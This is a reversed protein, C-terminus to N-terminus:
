SQKRSEIFQHILTNGMWGPGCSVSAETLAKGLNDDDIEMCSLKVNKHKMWRYFEGLLCRSQRENLQEGVEGGIKIRASQQQRNVVENLDSRLRKLFRWVNAFERAHDCDTEDENIPPVCESKLIKCASLPLSLRQLAEIRESESNFEFTMVLMRGEWMRSKWTKLVTAQINKEIDSTDGSHPGYSVKIKLPEKRGGGCMAKSIKDFDARLDRNCVNIAAFKTDIQEVDTRRLDCIADIEKRQLALKTKLEAIETHHRKVVEDLSFDTPKSENPVLRLFAMNGDGIKSAAESQYVKSWKSGTMSMELRFGDPVRGDHDQLLLLVRTTLDCLKIREELNM